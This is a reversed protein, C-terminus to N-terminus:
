EPVPVKGYILRFIGAGCAATLGTASLVGALFSWFEAGFTAEPGRVQSQELAIYFGVALVAAGVGLSADFRRVAIAWGAALGLALALAVHDLGNLVHLIGTVFGGGAAGLVHAEAGSPLGALALIAAITFLRKM